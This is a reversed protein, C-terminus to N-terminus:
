IGLGNFKEYGGGRSGSIESEASNELTAAASM